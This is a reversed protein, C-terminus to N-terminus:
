ITPRTRVCGVSQPSQQRGLQRTWRAGLGHWDSTEDFLTPLGEPAYEPRDDFLYNEWLAKSIQTKTRQAAGMVAEKHIDYVRMMDREGGVM